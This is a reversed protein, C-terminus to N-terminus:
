CAGHIIEQQKLMAQFIAISPAPRFRYRHWGAHPGDHGDLYCFKDSVARVTYLAGARLAGGSARADVCIVPQGVRFM